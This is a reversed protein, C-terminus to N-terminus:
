GLVIRISYRRVAPATSGCGASAARRLGKSSNNSSNKSFCFSRGSVSASRSATRAMRSSSAGHLRQTQRQARKAGVGPGNRQVQAGEAAATQKQDAAVGARALGGQKVGDGVRQVALGGAHVAFGGHQAAIKGRRVGLGPHLQFKGVPAPHVGHAAPGVLLAGGFAARPHDTHGGFGLQEPLRLFRHGAHGGHGGGHGRQQADVCLLKGLDGHQRLVIKGPQEVSGAGVPGGNQALNKVGAVALTQALGGLAAGVLAGGGAVPGGVRHPQLKRGQPAVVLGQGRQGGVGVNVLGVLGQRQGGVLDGGVFLGLGFQGGRQFHQVFLQGGAAGPHLDGALPVGLATLKGVGAAGGLARGGDLGLGGLRQVGHLLLHVGQGGLLGAVLFAAARQAHRVGLDGPQVMLEIHGPPQKGGAFAQQVVQTGQVAGLGFGGLALHGVFGGLGPQVVGLGGGGGQAALEVGVPGTQQGAFQLVALGARDAAAALMGAPGNQGLAVHGLGLHVGGFFPQFGQALAGFAGAARRALMQGGGFLPLGRQHLLGVGKKGPAAGAVGAFLGGLQTQHFQLGGQGLLLFTQVFADFLQLALMQFGAALHVAAIHQGPFRFPHLAPAGLQVLLRKGGGGAAGVGLRAAGGGLGAYLGQGVRHGLMVVGFCHGLQLGSQGNQALVPGLGQLLPVGGGLAQLAVACRPLGEFARRAAEAGCLLVGGQPVIQGSGDVAIQGPPDLQGKLLIHLGQIKLLHHVGGVLAKGTHGVALVGQAAALVAADAALGRQIQVHEVSVGALHAGHAAKRAALAKHGRQTQRQADAIGDLLVGAAHGNFRQKDVFAEARQVGVTQFFGHIRQGSQGAAVLQDAHDAM